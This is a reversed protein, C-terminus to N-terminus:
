DHMKMIANLNREEQVKAQQHIQSARAMMQEKGSLDSVYKNNTMPISMRQRGGIPPGVYQQQPQYQGLGQVSQANHM